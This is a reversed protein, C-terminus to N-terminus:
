VLLGGGGTFSNVFLCADWPPHGLPFLQVHASSAMPSEVGLGVSFRTPSYILSLSLSLSSVTPSEQLPM